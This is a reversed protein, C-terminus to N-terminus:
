HKLRQDMAENVKKTVTAINPTADITVIDAAPYYSTVMDMERHYDKLRQDLTGDKVEHSGKMRKMVVNDPIALQIVFTYPLKGEKVLKAVFDAHDKTAPYGDLILGKTIDITALKKAFLQNLFPDSEETMGGMAKARNKRFGEPDAAILDQRTVVPLKYKAAAANAQTSKGSGPPGIFLIVSAGPPSQAPLLAAFLLLLSAALKMSDNECAQRSLPAVGFNCTNALNFSDVRLRTNV